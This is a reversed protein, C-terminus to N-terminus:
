MICFVTLLICLLVCSINNMESIICCVPYWYYRANLSQRYCVHLMNVINNRLLLISLILYCHYSILVITSKTESLRVFTVYRLTIPNNSAPKFAEIDM